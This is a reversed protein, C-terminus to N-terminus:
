IRSVLIVVLGPSFEKPKQRVLPFTLSFEWNNFLFVSSKDHLQTPTEGSLCKTTIMATIFGHTSIHTLFLFENYIGSDLCNNCNNTM